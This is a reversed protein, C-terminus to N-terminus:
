SYSVWFTQRHLRRVHKPTFPRFGLGSYLVNYDVATEMKKEMIQM